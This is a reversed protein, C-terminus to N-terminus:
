GTNPIASIITKIYTSHGSPIMNFDSM